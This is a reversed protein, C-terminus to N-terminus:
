IVARSLLSVVKREVDSQKWVEAEDGTYKLKLVATKNAMSM